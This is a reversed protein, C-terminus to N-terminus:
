PELEWWARLRRNVEHALRAVTADLARLQTATPVQGDPMVELVAWCDGLAQEARLAAGAVLRRQAEGPGHGPAFRQAVSAPRGLKSALLGLQQSLRRQQAFVAMDHQCWGSAGWRARLRQDLLPLERGLRQCARQDRAVLEPWHATAADPRTAGRAAAPTAGPLAKGM